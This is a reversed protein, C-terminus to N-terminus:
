QKTIKNFFLEEDKPEPKVAYADWNSSLINGILEREQIWAISMRIAMDINGETRAKCLDNIHNNIISEPSTKNWTLSYDLLLKKALEAPLIAMPQGSLMNEMTKNTSFDLIINKDM